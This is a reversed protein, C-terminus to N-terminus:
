ERLIGIALDTNQIDMEPAFFDLDINLIGSRCLEAFGSAHSLLVSESEMRLMDGVFGSRLAPVIYNGVQCREHAWAFASGADLSAIPPLLADNPRLDSHQDVHVLRAGTHPLLGDIASEIWYALAYNHNDFVYVRRGPTDLRLHEALGAYSRTTDDEDVAFVRESGLRAHSLSEVLALPPVHLGPFGPSLLRNGVPRTETFGERLITM